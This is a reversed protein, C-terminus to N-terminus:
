EVEEAAVFHREIVAHRNYWNYIAPHNLFDADFEKRLQYTNDNTQCDRLQDLMTMSPFLWRPKVVEPLDAGYHAV